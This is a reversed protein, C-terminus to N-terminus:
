ETVLTLDSLAVKYKDQDDDQVTASDGSLKTIEGQRETGDDDWQVRSGVEVEATEEPEGGTGDDLTLETLDVEYEGDECAVTAKKGKIKEVTGTKTEGECEFTVASEIEIEGTAEEEEPAEGEEAVLDSEDVDYDDGADTHVRASGNKLSTIEGSVQEGEVEFTVRSGVELDVAAADGGGGNTLDDAALGQVFINTFGSTTNTRARVVLMPQETTLTELTDELEDGPVKEYGLLGLDRALYDMGSAKDGNEDSLMYRQRGKKGEYEGDIAEVELFVIDGKKKDKKLTLSNLRVVHDGDPLTNSANAANSENDWLQALSSSVPRKATGAKAPTAKAPSTKTPGAKKTPEVKKTPGAKKAPEAKKAPASKKVPAVKKTPTTTKKVAM